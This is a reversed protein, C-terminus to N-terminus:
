PIDNLSSYDITHKRLFDFSFYVYIFSYHFFDYCSIDFDM